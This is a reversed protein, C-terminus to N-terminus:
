ASPRGARAERRPPLPVPAHWAPQMDSPTLTGNGRVTVPVLRGASRSGANKDATAAPAPAPASKETLKSSIFEFLTRAGAEAKHGIAVAVKGGVACADPQRECFGRADSVAASALTVAQAADISTDPTATKGGGSPLLVCVVGLWFAMRLLFFM